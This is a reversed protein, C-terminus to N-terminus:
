MSSPAVCICTIYVGPSNTDIGQSLRSNNVVWHNEAARTYRWLYGRGVKLINPPAACICTIYIGPSNTDIAMRLGSNNVVRHNGGPPSSGQCIEVVVQEGGECDKTSSCM